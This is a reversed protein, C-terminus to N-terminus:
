VVGEDEKLLWNSKSIAEVHVYDIHPVRGAEICGLGKYLM